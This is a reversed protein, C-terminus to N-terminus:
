TILFTDYTSIRNGDNNALNPTPPVLVGGGVAPSPSNATSTMSRIQNIAEQSIFKRNVFARGSFQVAILKITESKLVPSIKINAM